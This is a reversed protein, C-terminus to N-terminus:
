ILHKKIYQPIPIKEGHLCFFLLFKPEKYHMLISAIGVVSLSFSCIFRKKEKEGLHRLTLNDM